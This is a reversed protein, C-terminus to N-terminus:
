RTLRFFVDFASKARPTLKRRRWADAAKRIAEAQTPYAFITEGLKGLGVGVTIAATLTGIMEGAHEAVLTAGLVRDSGRKVYVTLFGETEGDLRARDVQSFPVTIAEAEGEERAADAPEIGVHAVEPSTYTVRPVVLDSAKGRGFFLANQVVMRAQADAAHTFAALGNVDGVAYVRSNSTRLRDDVEVGKEGTRIGAAELGMGEVNPKRGTAVLIEDAELDRAEGGAEVRLSRRGGRRQAATARAGLLLEVGDRELAAAVVRSADPSEGTLVREDAEVLTVRSGLRAFAQALECGIPGGGLVVLREPLETLSFVTENTLYGAEELGEIPPVAPRGGTALVARRFRLVRGDVEVREADVFRGEGLFVDVGLDRFRAASDHGSIAARIGRMRGMVAGFDGEGSVPPGSFDEAARRAAHWARASRIVAKSPVCGVNLCDGGLMHREVMAVRAGLAVAIAASVLGATGGGVVVLHYREAPRPNEWDPPHVNERLRRNADDLPLYQAPVDATEAQTPPPM